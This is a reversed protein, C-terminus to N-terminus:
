GTKTLMSLNSAFVWLHTGKQSGYYIGWYLYPTIWLVLKILPRKLYHSIRLKHSGYNGDLVYELPLGKICVWEIIDLEYMFNRRQQSNPSKKDKNCLIKLDGNLWKTWTDSLHLSVREWFKKVHRQVKQGNVTIDLMVACGQNNFKLLIAIYTGRWNVM